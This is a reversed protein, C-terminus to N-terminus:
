SSIDYVINGDKKEGGKLDGNGLFTIPFPTTLTTLECITHFGKAQGVKVLALYLYWM